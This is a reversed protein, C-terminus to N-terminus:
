RNPKGLRVRYYDLSYRDPGNVFMWLGVGFLAIDQPYSMPPGALFLFLISSLVVLGSSVKTLLGIILILGLSVEFIGLLTTFTPIDMLPDIFIRVRWTISIWSIYREMNIFKDVGWLLYVLGVSIRPLANFVEKNM